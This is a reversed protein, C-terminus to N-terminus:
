YILIIVTLIIIMINIVNVYDDDDNTRNTPLYMCRKTIYRGKIKINDILQYRKRERGIKENITGEMASKMLYDRRM